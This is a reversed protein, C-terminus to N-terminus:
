TEVEVRMATALAGGLIQVSRGFRVSLPGDFPQRDLVEFPDGLRVGREDLYRLM